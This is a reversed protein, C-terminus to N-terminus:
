QLSLLAGSGHVVRIYGNTLHRVVLYRYPVSMVLAGQQEIKSRKNLACLLLLLLSLTLSVSFLPSYSTLVCLHKCFIALIYWCTEQRYPTAHKQFNPVVTNVSAYAGTATFKSVTIIACCINHCTSVILILIVIVLM